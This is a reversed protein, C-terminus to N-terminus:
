RILSRASPRDVANKTLCKGYIEMLEKSYIAPLERNSGKLVLDAQEVIGKDSFM